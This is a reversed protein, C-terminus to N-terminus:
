ILGCYIVKAHRLSTDTVSIITIRDHINLHALSIHMQAIGDGVSSFPLAVAGWHASIVIPPAVENPSDAQYRPQRIVSKFFKLHESM